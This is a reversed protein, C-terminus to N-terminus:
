ASVENAAPAATGATKLNKTSGFSVASARRAVDKVVGTVGGMGGMGKNRDKKGKKESCIAANVDIGADTAHDVAAADVGAIGYKLIEVSLEDGWQSCTCVRSVLHLTM